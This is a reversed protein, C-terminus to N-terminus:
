NVVSKWLRTCPVSGAHYFDIFDIMCVFLHLYFKMKFVGSYQPFVNIGDYSLHNTLNLVLCFISYSNGKLFQLGLETIVCLFCM